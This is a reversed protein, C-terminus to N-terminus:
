VESGPMASLHQLECSFGSLESAKKGSGGIFDNLSPLLLFVM